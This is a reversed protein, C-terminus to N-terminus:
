YLNEGLLLKEKQGTSLKNNIQDPSDELQPGVVYSLKWYVAHLIFPFRETFSYGVASWFERM